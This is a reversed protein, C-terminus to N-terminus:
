GHGLVASQLMSGGAENRLANDISNFAQDIM